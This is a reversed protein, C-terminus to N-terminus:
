MLEGVLSHHFFVVQKTLLYHFTIRSFIYISVMQENNTKSILIYTATYM